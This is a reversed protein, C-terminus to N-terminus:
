DRFILPSFLAPSVAAAERARESKEGPSFKAEQEAADALFEIALYAPLQALPSILPENEAQASSPIALRTM